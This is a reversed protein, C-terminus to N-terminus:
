AVSEFYAKLSKEERKRWSVRAAIESFAIQINRKLSLDKLKPTFFEKFKAEWTPTSLPGSSYWIFYEMHKGGGFLKVLYSWNDTFWAWAIERTYRNRILYAFWHALDQQRVVGDKMMGWEIIKKGVKVDRTSCLASAISEQVEPNHSSVYEEMLQKIASPQGFRVVAGSIIARQEAPLKEVSGAKSFIELATNIADPHEGSISLALVTNRLHKTNPDDGPKDTWGLKKYWFAALQQRYLRIQVEASKDGDILTQAFGIARAFMSWVADRPEEDCRKALELIDTLLYDGHRALLTMDNLITVRSIASLSRDVVKNKMNQLTKDDEYKTIFHGDGDVNFIPPESQSYHITDSQSNLLIKELKINALLPIPWLSQEGEGDLLFREQSLMLQNEKYRVSLLPTGSQRIWPTMLAEIDQGSAISFEHWLDGRSTNAYAYKKFYSKLGARFADEGIYDFLMKLLRAGKAYVIAPDFLSSIEDPHNVEVGVPQVDKYIDRHSASIVRGTVFDEWQQWDPHLRDPALTEMISAFSENLWLDDWWRMTVLNGFWQHSMEHAIVLTILQEASLSRNKPDALLGVERYTILGWNEMALSDFDPLAVQDIKPLPFPTDFYDEFFELCKVAEDNAYNLHNKSQAVTSWSRVLTGNKSKAEVGHLEGVVFALLYTSMLPTSEFNTVLRGKQVLHKKVPTNGLAVVGKPTELTLDFTAKAEPEDICPFAERAHHSEFQTAVLMKDQGKHKFYCPYIGHMTDTIKGSFSVTITYEGPFLKKPSHIRLEDYTKHTNIRDVKMDEDGKKDHRTITAEIISLGKQHLIIRQSPRGTRKANIIVTGCFKKLDPDLRLTLDYHSPKLGSFLRVVNKSMGNNYCHM